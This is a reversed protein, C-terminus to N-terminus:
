KLNHFMISPHKPFTCCSFFIYCLLHAVDFHEFHSLKVYYIAIFFLQLRLLTCRRIIFRLFTYSPFRAVHFYLLLLVSHFLNLMLLTRCRLLTVNFFYFSQFSFFHLMFLIVACFIFNLMLSKKLLHSWIGLKRRTQDCKSFFDKIVM